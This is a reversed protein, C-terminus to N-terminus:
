TAMQEHIATNPPITKVLGTPSLLRSDATVSIKVIFKPNLEQQSEHWLDTNLGDKHHLGMIPNGGTRKGNGGHPPVNHGSKM